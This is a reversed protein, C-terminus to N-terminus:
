KSVELAKLLADRGCTCIPQTTQDFSRGGYGPCLVVHKVLRVDGARALENYLALRALAFDAIAWAKREELDPNAHIKGGDKPYEPLGAIREALNM